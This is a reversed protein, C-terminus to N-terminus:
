LNTYAPVESEATMQCNLVTETEVNKREKEFETVGRAEQWIETLIIM